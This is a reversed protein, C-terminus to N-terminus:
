TSFRYHGTTPVLLFSILSSGPGVVMFVWIILFNIVKLTNEQRLRNYSTYILAMNLRFKKHTELTIKNINRM